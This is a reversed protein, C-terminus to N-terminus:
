ANHVKRLEKLDQVWNNRKIGGVLNVLKIQSAIMTGEFTLTSCISPTFHAEYREWWGNADVSRIACYEAYEPNIAEVAWIEINWLPKYICLAAFTNNPSDFIFLKGIESQVWRDEEYKVAWEKKALWSWKEDNADITLIKYFVKNM